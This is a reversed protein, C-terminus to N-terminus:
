RAPASLAPIIYLNKLKLELAIVQKGLATLYYKYTKGMKKILGHTRLPKMLRSIQGSNKGKVRRRLDQNQFGSINFEGSELSQFLEEDEPDFFNFGRYSRQNVQTPQSIQNLKDTGATDDQIASIFELYRRNAALM